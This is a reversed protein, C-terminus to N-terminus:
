GFKWLLLVGLVMVVALILGLDFILHLLLFLRLVAPEMETLLETSRKAVLVGGDFFSNIRPFQGGPPPVITPKSFQRSV